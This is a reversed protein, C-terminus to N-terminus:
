RTEWWRELDGYRRVHAEYNWPSNWLDARVDSNRSNLHGFGLVALFGFKIYDIDIEGVTPDQKLWSVQMSPHDGSQRATESDLWGRVEGNPMKVRANGAGLIYGNNELLVPAMEILTVSIRYQHRGAPPTTGPPTQIEGWIATVGTVLHLLEQAELAHMIAEFTTRKSEELANYAAADDLQGNCDGVGCLQDIFMKAQDSLYHYSERSQSMWTAGGTAFLPGVALALTFFARRGITRLSVNWTM